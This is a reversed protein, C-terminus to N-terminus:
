KSKCWATIGNHWDSELSDVSVIGGIASFDALKYSGDRFSHYLNMAVEKKETMLYYTFAWSNAYDWQGSQDYGERQRLLSELDRYESQSKNCLDNLYKKSHSIQYENDNVFVSQAFFEAIGEDAWGKPESHYDADSWMGAYVYRGQLYHTFEHKILDEVTYSSQNENRQFTYLTGQNELYLGGAYAGYGVFSNMYDSYEDPTALLVLTLSSNPDDGIPIDFPSGMIEFFVRRQNEMLELYKHLENRPLGSKITIGNQSISNKLHTKEFDAKLTDYLDTKNYRDLAKAIFSKPILKDEAGYADDLGSILQQRQAPEIQDEKIIECTFAAEARVWLDDSRLSGLIFAVDNETLNEKEYIISRIANIARWRAVADFKPDESISELYPQTEFFPRFHADILVTLEPVVYSSDEKKLTNIISDKIEKAMTKTVLIHPSKDEAHEAFRILVRGVNRRADDSEETEMMALLEHITDEDAIPSLALAISETCYYDAHRLADLLGSEDYSSIESCDYPAEQTSQEEPVHSFYPIIFTQWDVCRFSGECKEIADPLHAIIDTTTKEDIDFRDYYLEDYMYSFLRDTATPSSVLKYFAQLHRQPNAELLDFFTPICGLDNEVIIAQADPSSVAITDCDLSEQNIPNSLKDLSEIHRDNTQVHPISEPLIAWGKKVLKDASSLKVCIPFDNTSKILLTLGERCIIENPSVGQELQMKPSLIESFSAGTLFISAILTAAFLFFLSSM